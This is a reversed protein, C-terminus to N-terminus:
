KWEIKNKYSEGRTTRVLIEMSWATTDEKWVDPLNLLTATQAPAVESAQLPVPGQARRGNVVTTVFMNQLQIPAQGENRLLVRITFRDGPKPSAPDVDFELRGPLEAAQTAAKAEVGATPEFGAPVSGASPGGAKAETKGASFRKGAPAAAAGAGASAAAKAVAQAGLASTRGVSARQNGPDAKLAEDYLAIAQDYKQSSLAQEAQSLLGAVHQQKQQDTERRQQDEARQRAERIRNGIEVV